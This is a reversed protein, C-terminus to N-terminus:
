IFQYYHLITESNKYKYNAVEGTQCIVLEILTICFIEVYSKIKKLTCKFIM